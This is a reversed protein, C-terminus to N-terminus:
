IASRLIMMDKIFMRNLTTNVFRARTIADPPTRILSRLAAALPFTSPLLKVDSVSLSKLSADQIEEALGKYAFAEKAPVLADFAPGALILRWRDVDEYYYWVALTPSNGGADLRHLLEVSDAIQSDVLATEVM